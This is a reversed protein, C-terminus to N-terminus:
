AQGGRGTRDQQKEARQKRGSHCGTCLPQWNTKDWFVKMDGRHPTKHDVVNAPKGCM